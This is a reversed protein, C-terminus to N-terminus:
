PFTRLRFFTLALVPPCVLVFFWVSAPRTPYNTSQDEARSFARDRGSDYCRPAATNSEGKLYDRLPAGASTSHM